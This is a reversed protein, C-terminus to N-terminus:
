QSKDSKQAFTKGFFDGAIWTPRQPQQALDDGLLFHLIAGKTTSEWSFPQDMNDRPTHHATTMWKEIKAIAEGNVKPDTSESGDAITVAPVGKKVFSYQDLRTFYAEEAMPDSSVVYGLRQASAGVSRGLTSHGAGLAVVDRPPYPLPGASPPPGHLEGGGTSSHLRACKGVSRCGCLTDTWRQCAHWM